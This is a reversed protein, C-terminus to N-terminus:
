FATILYLPPYVHGTTLDLAPYYVEALTATTVSLAAHTLSSAPDLSYLVGELEVEITTHTSGVNIQAIVSTSDCSQWFSALAQRPPRASVHAPFATSVSSDTVLTNPSNSYGTWNVCVTAPAPTGSVSEDGASWVKISKVKVASFFSTLTANAVTCVTGLNLCLSQGTLRIATSSGGGSYLIKRRVIANQVVQTPRASM